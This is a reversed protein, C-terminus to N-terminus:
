AEQSIAAMANALASVVQDVHGENMRPHLPLTLQRGAYQETQPLCVSPFRSRYFSFQHAAPYHNSTQVGAERMHDIIHQRDAGEPLVIAMIHHSSSQAATDQWDAFPLGIEPCRQKLSRMYLATLAKRKANWPLLNKLQALGVAARLEDMRYNYGLMTVDYGVTRNSFRQFTGSTMGHGRMQRVRHLIAEDVATVMGGEATTMNKNGYFSFAAAHGQVGAHPAGAAHAADEILLLGHSTAFDRWADGNTVYGGYHMVIVARTKATLKAAADALSILPRHLSEIDVFVPSAGTYLVANITAVFTLSPV